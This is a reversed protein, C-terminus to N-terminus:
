RAALADVARRLDAWWSPALRLVMDNAIVPSPALTMLEARLQCDGDSWDLEILLRPKPVDSIAHADLNGTWFAGGAWHSM